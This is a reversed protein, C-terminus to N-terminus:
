ATKANKVAKVDLYFSVSELPLKKLDKQIQLRHFFEMFKLKLKQGGLLGLKGFNNKLFSKAL